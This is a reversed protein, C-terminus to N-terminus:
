HFQLPPICGDGVELKHASCEGDWGLHKRITDVVMGMCEVTSKGRRAIGWRDPTVAGQLDCNHNQEVFGNGYTWSYVEAVTEM